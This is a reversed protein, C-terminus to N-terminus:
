DPSFDDAPPCLRPLGALTQSASQSNQILKQNKGFRLTCLELHVLFSERGPHGVNVGNMTNEGTWSCYGHPDLPWQCVTHAEFPWAASVRPVPGPSPRHFVRNYRKWSPASPSPVSPLWSSLEQSIIDFLYVKEGCWLRRHMPGQFEKRVIRHSIMIKVWLFIIIVIWSILIDM